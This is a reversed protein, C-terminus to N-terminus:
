SGLGLCLEYLEGSYTQSYNGSYTRGPGLAANKERKVRMRLAAQYGDLAVGKGPPAVPARLDQSPRRSGGDAVPTQLSGHQIQTKARQQRTNRFIKRGSATCTALGFAVCAVPIPSSTFTSARAAGCIRTTASCSREGPMGHCRRRRRADLEDRLVAAPCPHPQPLALFRFDSFIGL